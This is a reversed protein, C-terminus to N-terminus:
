VSGRKFLPGWHTGRRNTDASNEAATAVAEATGMSAATEAIPALVPRSRSLAMDEAQLLRRITGKPM